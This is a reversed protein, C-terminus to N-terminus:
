RHELSNEDREILKQFDIFNLGTLKAPYQARAAQWAAPVHSSNDTAGTQQALTERVSDIRRSAVILDNTVALHYYNWSATGAANAMGAESIKLFTADGETRESAV